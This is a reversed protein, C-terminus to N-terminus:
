NLVAGKERLYHKVDDFRVAGTKRTDIADFNKVVFGLGAAEAQARTLTGNGKIDASDFRQKLKREVQEQLATGQTAVAPAAKRTAPPVWPDLMPVEATVRQPDPMPTIQASASISAAMLTAILLGPKKTTPMKM